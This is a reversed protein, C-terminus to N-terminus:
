PKSFSVQVEIIASVPLGDRIAPKWQPGGQIIRIADQHLERAGQAFFGSLAGNENVAFSVIVKGEREVSKAQHDLYEQYAKWGEAPVPQPINKVAASVGLSKKSQTQTHTVVVEDLTPTFEELRITGIEQESVPIRKENFGIFSLRLSDHANVPIRFHGASDTVGEYESKSRVQVGPLAVGAADVVRGSVFHKSSLVETKARASLSKAFAKAPLAAGTAPLALSAAGPSTVGTTAPAATSQIPAAAPQARAIDETLQSDFVPDGLGPKQESAISTPSPKPVATKSVPAPTKNLEAGLIAANDKKEPAGSPAIVMTETRTAIQERMGDPANLFYLSYLGVALLVTAAAGYAWLPIISRHSGSTRDALRGRLGTRLDPIHTEQSYWAMFGEYAEAILPEELMQMELRHQEEPPMVGQYYRLFDDFDPFDPNTKAM